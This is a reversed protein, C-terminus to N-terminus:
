LVFICVDDEGFTMQESVKKGGTKDRLSRNGRLRNFDARAAERTAERRKNQLAKAAANERYLLMQQINQETVPEAYLLEEGRPLRLVKLLIFLLHPCWKKRGGSNCSCRHFPSALAVKFKNTINRPALKKEDNTNEDHVSVSTAASSDGLSVQERLDIQYGASKRVVLSDSGTTM